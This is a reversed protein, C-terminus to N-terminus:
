EKRTQWWLISDPHSGYVRWIVKLILILYVLDVVSILYTKYQM